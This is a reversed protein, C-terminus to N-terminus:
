GARRLCARHGKDAKMVLAGIYLNTPERRAAEALLGLALLHKGAAIDEEARRILDATSYSVM